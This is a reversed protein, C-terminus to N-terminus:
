NTTLLVSDDSPEIYNLTFVYWITYLSCWAHGDVLSFSSLLIYRPVFLYRIGGSPCCIYFFFFVANSKTYDHVREVLSYFIYRIYFLVFLLVRFSCVKTSNTCRLQLGFVASLTVARVVYVRENKAGLHRKMWRCCLNPGFVDSAAM